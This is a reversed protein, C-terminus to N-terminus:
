WSGDYFPSTQDPSNFIANDMAKEADFLRGEVAAGKKSHGDWNKLQSSLVSISKTAKELDSLEAPLKFWDQAILWDQYSKPTNQFNQGKYKGFKLIFNTTTM